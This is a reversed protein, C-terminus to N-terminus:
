RGKCAISANSFMMATRLMRMAYTKDASEPCAWNIVNAFERAANRIAAYSDLDESTPPHYMFWNELEEAKM